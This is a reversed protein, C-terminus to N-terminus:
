PVYKSAACTAPADDELQIRVAGLRHEMFKWMRVSTPFMGAM